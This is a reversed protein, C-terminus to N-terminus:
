RYSLQENRAKSVFYERTTAATQVQVPPQGGPSTGTLQVAGDDDIVRSLAAGRLEVTVTDMVGDDFGDDVTLIGTALATGAVSASFLDAM